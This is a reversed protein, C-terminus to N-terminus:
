EFAAGLCNEIQFFFTELSRLTPFYKRITGEASRNAIKPRRPLYM